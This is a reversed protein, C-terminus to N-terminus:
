DGIREAFRARLQLAAQGLVEGASAAGHGAEIRALGVHGLEPRKREVAPVRKLGQERRQLLVPAQIITWM